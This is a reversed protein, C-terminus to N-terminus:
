ELVSGAAVLCAGEHDQSGERRSSALRARSGRGSDVRAPTLRRAFYVSSNLRSATRSTLAPNRQREALAVRAVGYEANAALKEDALESALSALRAFRVRAPSIYGLHRIAADIASRTSM